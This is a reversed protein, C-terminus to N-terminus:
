RVLEALRQKSESTITESLPKRRAAPSRPFPSDTESVRFERAWSGSERVFQRNVLTTIAGNLEKEM